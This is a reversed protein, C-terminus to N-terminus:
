QRAQLTQIEFSSNFKLSPPQIEIKNKKVVEKDILFHFFSISTVFKQFLSKSEDLLRNSIAAPQTGAVEKHLRKEQSFIYPLDLTSIKIQLTKKIAGNVGKEIIVVENASPKVDQDTFYAPRYNHSLLAQNLFAPQANSDFDALLWILLFLFSKSM